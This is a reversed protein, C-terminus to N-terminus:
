LIFCGNIKIQNVIKWLIILIMWLSKLIIQCTILVHSNFKYHRVFGSYLFQKTQLEDDEGNYFRTESIIWSGVDDKNIRKIIAINLGKKWYCLCFLVKIHQICWKLHQLHIEILQTICNQAWERRDCLTEGVYHSISM